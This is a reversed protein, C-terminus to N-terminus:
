PPMDSKTESHISQRFTKFKSRGFQRSTLPFHECKEAREFKSLWINIKRKAGYLYCYFSLALKIDVLMESM